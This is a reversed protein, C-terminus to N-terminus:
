FLRWVLFYVKQKGSQLLHKLHGWRVVNIDDRPRKNDQWKGRLESTIATLTLFHPLSKLDSGSSFSFFCNSLSVLMCEDPILKLIKEYREEDSFLNQRSIYTGEFFDKLVEAYSRRCSM